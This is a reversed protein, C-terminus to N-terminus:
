VMAIQGSLPDAVIDEVMSGWKSALEGCHENMERRERAAKERYRASEERDRESERRLEVYERAKLVADHASGGPRFGYSSESFGPEFVRSM